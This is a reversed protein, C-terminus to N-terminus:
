CLVSHLDAMLRELTEAEDAEAGAHPAYVEFGDVSLRTRRGILLWKLRSLEMETRMAEDHHAEVRSTLRARVELDDATLAAGMAEARPVVREYLARYAVALREHRTDRAWTALAHPEALLRGTLDVLTEPVREDEPM